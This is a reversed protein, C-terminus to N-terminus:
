VGKAMACGKGSTYVVEARLIRLGGCITPQTALISNLSHHTKCRLADVVGNAKRPDYQNHLAYDKIFELSQRKHINLDKQTFIHKLNKHYHRM